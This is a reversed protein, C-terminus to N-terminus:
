GVLSLKTRFRNSLGPLAIFDGRMGAPTDYYSEPATVLLGEVFEAGGGEPAALGLFQERLLSGALGRFARLQGGGRM